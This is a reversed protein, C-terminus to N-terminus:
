DNESKKIILELIIGLIFGLATFIITDFIVAVAFTDGFCEWGTGSCEFYSYFYSGPFFLINLIKDIITLSVFNKMNFKINDFFIFGILFSLINYIQGYIFFRHKVTEKRKIIEKIYLVTILTYIVLYVVVLNKLLNANEINEKHYSFTFYSVTIISIVGLFM